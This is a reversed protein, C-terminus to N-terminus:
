GLIGERGERILTFSGEGLNFVKKSFTLAKGERIIVKRIFFPKKFRGSFPKNGGELGFRGIPLGSDM